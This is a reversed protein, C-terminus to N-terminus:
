STSLLFRKLERWKAERSKDKKRLCLLPQDEHDQARLTETTRPYRIPTRLKRPSNSNIPDDNTIPDSMPIDQGENEVPGPTSQCDYDMNIEPQSTDEISPSPSDKWWLRTPQNVQRIDTFPQSTAEDTLDVPENKLTSGEDHEQPSRLSSAVANALHSQQEQFQIDHKLDKCSEELDKNFRLLGAFVDTLQRALHRSSELLAQRLELEKKEDEITPISIIGVSCNRLVIM